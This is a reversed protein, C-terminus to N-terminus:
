GIPQTTWNAPDPGLLRLHHAFLDVASIAPGRGLNMWVFVGDANGACLQQQPWLRGSDLSVRYGRIVTTSARYYMLGGCANLSAPGADFLPTAAPYIGLPTADPLGSTVVFSRAYQVDGIWSTLVSDVHWDAPVGTLQFPFSVPTGVGPGFRIDRAIRLATSLSPAEVIAWGNRAYQWKLSGPRPGQSTSASVQRGATSTNDPVTGATSTNDPVAGATNTGSPMPGATRNRLLAVIGLMLVQHREPQWFAPQGAVKGALRGLKGDPIQHPRGDGPNCLLGGGRVQCHGASYADLLVGRGYLILDTTGFLGSVRASEHGPLWGFSAYPSLPDFHAPAPGFASDATRGTGLLGGPLVGSLAIALVAAAAFVPAAIIGSRHLGLRMRGRHTAAPISITSPPLDSDAMEEYVARIDSELM